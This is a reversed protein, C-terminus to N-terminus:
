DGEATDRGPLPRTETEGEPDMEIPESPEARRLTIVVSIRATSLSAGATLVIAAALGIWAGVEPSEGNAAPPPNILAAAVIVLAVIGLAPLLRAPVLPGGEPRGGAAPAPLVAAIAALGIAALVLDMTEFVTWASNGPEFWNLFLSVILAVGGVVVLMQGGHIRKPM